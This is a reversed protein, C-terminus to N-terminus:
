VKVGPFDDIDIGLFAAFVVWCVVAIDALTYNDGVLYERGELRKELVGFLRRTEDYYRRQAYPVTETAYNIFFSLQGMM